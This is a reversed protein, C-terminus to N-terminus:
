HFIWSAIANLPIRAGKSGEDFVLLANSVAVSEISSWGRKEITDKVSLQSSVGKEEGKELLSKKVRRLVHLYKGAL